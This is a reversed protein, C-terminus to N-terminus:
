APVWSMPGLSHAATGRNEVAIIRLRHRATGFLFFVLVFDFFFIFLIFYNPFQSHIV